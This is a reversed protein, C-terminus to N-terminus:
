EPLVRADSEYPAFAARSARHASLAAIEATSFADPSGAPLYARIWGIVMLRARGGAQARPGEGEACEDWLEFLAARRAAADPTTAWLATLNAQMQESAHALQDGRFAEGKAAREDFTDHLIKQKRAAWPDGVHFRKMLAATVDLTGGFGVQGRMNERSKKEFAPANADDCMTNQADCGGPTAQLHRPLDQTKGYRTQEYPDVAWEGIAHGADRFGRLIGSPTPLAPLHLKYDINPKDAFSVTGDRAVTATTVLDEVIGTGNPADHLRGSRHVPGPLERGGEALRAMVDAPPVLSPGRMDFLGRGVRTGSGADPAPATPETAAGAIEVRGAPQADRTVRKVMPAPAGAAAVRAAMAPDRAAPPALLVVEIPAEPEVWAIPASEPAVATADDLGDAPLAAAVALGVGVVALHVGVSGVVPAWRM